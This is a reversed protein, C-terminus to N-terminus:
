AFHLKTAFQAGQGLGYVPKGDVTYGHTELWVFAADWLAQDQPELTGKLIHEGEGENGRIVLCDTFAHEWEARDVGTLDQAVLWEYAFVHIEDCTESLVVVAHCAEHLINGNRERVFVTAKGNVAGLQAGWDGLCFDGWLAHPGLSFRGGLGRGVTQIAIGLAGVLTEFTM